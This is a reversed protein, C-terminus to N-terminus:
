RGAQQEKLRKKARRTLDNEKVSTIVITLASVKSLHLIYDVVRGNKLNHKWLMLKNTTNDLTDINHRRWGNTTSEDLIFEIVKEPSDHVLLAIELDKKMEEKSLNLVGEVAGREELKEVIDAHILTYQEELTADATADPVPKDPVNENSLDLNDQASATKDFTFNGCENNDVDDEYM